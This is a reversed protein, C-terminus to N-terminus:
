AVKTTKCKMQRAPHSKLWPLLEKWSEIMEIVETLTYEEECEPCNITEGDEIDVKICSEVLCKPCITKM